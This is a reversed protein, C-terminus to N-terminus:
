FSLEYFDPEPSIKRIIAQSNNMQIEFDKELSNYDVNVVYNGDSFVIVWRDELGEKLLEPLLKQYADVAKRIDVPLPQAIQKSVAEYSLDM